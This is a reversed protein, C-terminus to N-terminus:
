LESRAGLVSATAAQAQAGVVHTNISFMSGCMNVKDTM